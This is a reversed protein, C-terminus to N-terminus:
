VGVSSTPIYRSPFAAKIKRRFANKITKWAYIFGYSMEEKWTCALLCLTALLNLKVFLEQKRMLIRRLLPVSNDFLVQLTKIPLSKIEASSWSDFLKAGRYVM